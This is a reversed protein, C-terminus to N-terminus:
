RAHSCYNFRLELYAKKNEAYMKEMVARLTESSILYLLFLNYPKLYWSEYLHDYKLVLIFQLLLIVLGLFQITRNIRRHRDNVYYDTSRSRKGAKLIKRLVMNIVVILGIFGLIMLILKLTFIM